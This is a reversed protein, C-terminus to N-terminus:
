YLDKVYPITFIIMLLVYTLLIIGVAWKDERKKIVLIITAALTITQIILAYYTSLTFEETGPFVVSLVPGRVLSIFPAWFFHTLETIQSPWFLTGKIQVMYIQPRDFFLYQDGYYEDPTMLNGYGLFEQNPELIINSIGLTVGSDIMIVFEVDPAQGGLHDVLFYHLKGADPNQINSTTEGLKERIRAKFEYCCPDEQPVTQIAVLPVIIIAVILCSIVFWHINKNSGYKRLFNRNM